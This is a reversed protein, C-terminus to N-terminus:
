LILPSARCVGNHQLSRSATFDKISYQPLFRLALAEQKSQSDPQIDSYANAQNDLGKKNAADNTTDEKIARGGRGNTGM